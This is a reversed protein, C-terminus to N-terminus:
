TGLPRYDSTDTRETRHAVFVAIILVVVTLVAGVWDVVHLLETRVVRGTVMQSVLLVVGVIALAPISIGDTATTVAIWVLCGVIFLGLGYYLMQVGGTHVVLYHPTLLIFPGLAVLLVAFLTRIGPWQQPDFNTSWIAAVIISAFIVFAVLFHAMLTALEYELVTGAGLWIQVPLLVIAVTMAALARRPGTKLLTIWSGIILFGVIMAVLRHFWEVFSPWNAPFLGFVAGDCLPWRADCTLGAGVAATYIGLLIVAYTGLVTTPLLWSRDLRGLIRPGGAM